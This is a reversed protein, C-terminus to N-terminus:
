HKKFLISVMLSLPYNHINWTKMIMNGFILFRKWPFLGKEMFNRVGFLGMRDGDLGIGGGLRDKRIGGSRFGSSEWYSRGWGTRAAM